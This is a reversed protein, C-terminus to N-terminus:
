LVAEWDKVRLKLIACKLPLHAGNEHNIERNNEVTQIRNNCKAINVHLFYATLRALPLVVVIFHVTEPFLGGEGKVTAM